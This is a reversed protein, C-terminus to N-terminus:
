FRRKLAAWALWAGAGTLALGIIAIVQVAVPLWALRPAVVILNPGTATGAVLVAAMPTM